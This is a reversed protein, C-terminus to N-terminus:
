SARYPLPSRGSRVKTASCAACTRRRLRASTSGVMAAASVHSRALRLPLSRPLCGLNGSDRLAGDAAAVGGTLDGQGVEGLFVADAAGGDVADYVAGRGGIRGFVGGRVLM